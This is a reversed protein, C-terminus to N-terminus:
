LYRDGPSRTRVIQAPVGYAVVFAELDRAILSSAGVVSHEGVRVGHLIVAGIGIASFRGIDVNGGTIAGPALSAFDGLQSDHDLSSATNLICCRGVSSGPGVVSAAAIVAGPLIQASRSVVSAPHVLSAPSLGPCMAQVRDFVQSRVHNDGIAVVFGGVGLRSCLEPLDGERGIVPTGDICEGLPRLPDIMGAVRHTGAAHVIDLV